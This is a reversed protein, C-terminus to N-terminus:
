TPLPLVAVRVTLTHKGGGLLVGRLPSVDSFDRGWALAIHEQDVRLNNTPDFEVWGFPPAYVAVWAHSADAGIRVTEDPAIRKEAAGRAEEATGTAGDAGEARPRTRLYGSVYRAALGRSRLCAIMLQAYDQCVGHRKELVELLPTAIQTEGPAYTFESHIKHMLAQAVALVPRGPEFCEQGFEGFVKKVRVYPSETRFRMAELLGESCPRASYCLQDRVREWPEGDDAPIPAAPRLEVEMTAIVALQAHPRDFELRTTTNGFADLRESRASPAPQIDITHTLCRQRAYARPTLHLQQHSHAVEGGYTYITEHCVYFRADAAQRPPLTEASSV